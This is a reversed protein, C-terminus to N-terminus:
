TPSLHFSHALVSLLLYGTDCGNLRSKQSFDGDHNVSSKVKLLLFFQSRNTSHNWTQCRSQNRNIPRSLPSDGWVILASASMDAPWTSSLMWHQPLQVSPILKNIIFEFALRTEISRRMHSAKRRGGHKVQETSAQTLWYTLLNLKPNGRCGLAFVQTCKYKFNRVSGNFIHMIFLPLFFVYLCATANANREYLHLLQAHPSTTQHDIFLDLFTSSLEKIKLLALM